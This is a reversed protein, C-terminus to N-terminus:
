PAYKRWTAAQLSQSVILHKPGLMRQMAPASTKITSSSDDKEM